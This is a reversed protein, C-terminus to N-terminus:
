IARGRRATRVGLVGDAIKDVRVDEVGSRIRRAVEIQSEVACKVVVDYREAGQHHRGDTVSFSERVKSVEERVALLMRASQIIGGIARIDAEIGKMM